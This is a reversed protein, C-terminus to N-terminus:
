VFFSTPDMDLHQNWEHMCNHCQFKYDSNIGIDNLERIKDMIADAQIKTLGQLYEDIWERRTVIEQTSMVTIGVVSKSVLAFTRDIMTSIQKSIKVLRDNDSLSDDNEVIRLAQSRELENLIQLHRQEFTFPRLEILLGDSMEITTPDELFTQQDLLQQLNVQYDGETQCAPCTLTLDMSAGNTAIKIAVMLTNIDPEVLQIADHLSPVCSTIVERLAEGNLMADPTKLLIQDKASLACVGVEGNVSIELFNEPYFKHKSPLKVYVKPLRTFKKLPNM